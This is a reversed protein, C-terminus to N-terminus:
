WIRTVVNFKRYDNVKPDFFDRAEYTLKVKRGKLSEYDNVLDMSSNVSQLWWVKLTHGDEDRVTFVVFPEKEVRTVVGEITEASKEPDAARSLKVLREPCHQAIRMGMLEGIERGDVNRDLDVGMEARLKEKHPVLATMICIGARMKAEKSDQVPAQNSLCECATKAAADMFDEAHATAAMGLLLVAIVTRM